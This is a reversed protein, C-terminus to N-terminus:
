KVKYRKIKRSPTKEFEEFRVDVAQIQKFTPLNKNMAFVDSNVKKIIEEESLDKLTETNAVCVATIKTEGADNLRGIVVAESISSIKYLHEELEEPFVNKGNSLIIVNKKRGTIYIFGDDDTYGIDGTRFFGDETFVEKTAEENNFYGLMVNEGKVLIEGTEAHEDEKDIRVECGLVPIGVSRLRIDWPRNVAVLPSCETIGYGELILIGFSHFDKIIQPNLAAGGCVISKLEGGFANTIQGFFRKRQDIGVKLLADSVKMLARVTKTLGKKEIEDWVKKHMTEVFLPVLMLANPKFDAMDKIVRKLSHNIKIQAGLNMIAFEGCTMEYTHYPPLFSIFTNNSDYSMSLCSANTAATLNHQTLMVGKSTGTTGSTYIIACMKEMDIEHSTLVTNGNELESLGETRLQSYPIIDEGKDEEEEEDIPIYYKVDPFLDKHKTLYNNYTKTFVIAEAGSQKTFGAFNELDLEKPLPVIVGNGNVVSLYSAIYQPCTDGVIVVTKGFLGHLSLATGVAKVDTFLDNYSYELSEGNKDYFYLTKDGFQEAGTEVLNYLSTIIKPKNEPHLTNVFKM